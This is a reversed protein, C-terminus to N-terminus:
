WSLVSIDNNNNYTIKNIFNNKHLLSIFYMVLHIKSNAETQSFLYTKSLFCKSIESSWHFYRIQNLHKFYVQQFDFCNKINM